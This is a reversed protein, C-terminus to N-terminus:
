LVPEPKAFHFQNARNQHSGLEKFGQGHLKHGLHVSAEIIGALLESIELIPDKSLDFMPILKQIFLYYTVNM